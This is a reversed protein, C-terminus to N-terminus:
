LYEVGHGKRRMDFEKFELKQNDRETPHFIALSPGEADLGGGSSSIAFSSSMSLDRDVFGDFRWDVNSLNLYPVLAPVLMRFRLDGKRASGVGDFADDVAELEGGCFFCRCVDLYASGDLYACKDGRVSMRSGLRMPTKTPKLGPTIVAVRPCAYACGELLKQFSTCLEPIVSRRSLGSSSTVSGRSYAMPLVFRTDRGVFSAASSLLCSCISEVGTSSALIALNLGSATHM